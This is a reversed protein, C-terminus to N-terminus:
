HGFRQEVKSFRYLCKSFFPYNLTHYTYGNTIETLRLHWPPYGDLSIYNHPLGDYILMLDPDSCSDDHVFQNVLNIDIDSVGLNNEKIYKAIKQVARGMQPQGDEASIISFQLTPHVSKETNTSNKIWQHLTSVQQKYVDIAMSKLVGSKDYVSLEKVGFEWAWCSALCIDNVIAHWDELSREHILEHSIAITLHKPIKTLRSKDHKILDPISHRQEVWLSTITSEVHIYITAIAICALYICHIASLALYCSGDLISASYTKKSISHTARDPLLSSINSNLSLSPSLLELSPISPQTIISESQETVVSTTAM